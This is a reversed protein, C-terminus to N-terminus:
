FSKKKKTNGRLDSWGRLRKMRNEQFKAKLQQYKYLGLLKRVEVVFRFQEEALKIRADQLKKFLATCSSEDFDASELSTELEFKEKEVNNKLDILKRRNTVFLNDLKKQEDPTLKLEKAINPLRWWKGGPLNMNETQSAAFCIDPIWFLCVLTILILKKM